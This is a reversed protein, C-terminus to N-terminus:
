CRTTAKGREARGGAGVLGELYTMRDEVMEELREESLEEQAEEDLEVACSQGGPKGTEKVWQKRMIFEDEREGPVLVKRSVATLTRTQAALLRAHVAARAVKPGRQYRLAAEWMTLAQPRSCKHERRLRAVVHAPLSLDDAGTGQHHHHGSPGAESGHQSGNGSGNGVTGVHVFGMDQGGPSSPHPLEQRLWAPTNQVDMVDRIRRMIPTPDEVTFDVVHDDALARQQATELLARALGQNQYHPLVLLQSLKLRVQDPYHFHRYYTAFAAPHLTGDSQRAMALLLRWNPDSVDIGTMGDIFFFALQEFSAHLKSVVPHGSLDRCEYIQYAITPPISSIKGSGGGGGGGGDGGRDSNLERVLTVSEDGNGEGGGEERAAGKGGGSILDTACLSREPGQRLLAMFADADPQRVPFGTELLDEPRHTPARRSSSASFTPYVALTVPDLYARLQPDAHGELTEDPGLLFVTYEALYASSRPPLRAREALPLPLPTAAEDRATAFEDENGVM